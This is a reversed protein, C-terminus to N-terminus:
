ERRAASPFRRLVLRLLIIGLLGYILLCLGYGWYGLQQEMVGIGCANNKSFSNDLPQVSVATWMGPYLFLPGASESVWCLTMGLAMPLLFAMLLLVVQSWMIARSTRRAYMSILLSCVFLFGGFVVLDISLLVPTIWGVLGFLAICAAHLVPLLLLGRGRCLIGLAKGVVVQSPTLDSVALLPLTQRERERSIAGAGREALFACVVLVEILITVWHYLWVSLISFNPDSLWCVGPILVFFLLAAAVYVLRPMPRTSHWAQWMAPNRWVSLTPRDAPGAEKRRFLRRKTEKKMRLVTERNAVRRAALWCFLAFGGVCLLTCSVWGYRMFAVLTGPGRPLDGSVYYAAFLPNFFALVCTYVATIGQGPDIRRGLDITSTAIIFAPPGLLALITIGRARGVAITTNPCGASFYVGAGCCFALMGLLLTYHGVVEFWSVGGFLFCLFVIPVYGLVTLGIALLGATVKAYVIELDTLDTVLLLPLTQREKEEAILGASLTPAAFVVAIWTVVVVTYFLSSGIDSIVDIPNPRYRFAMHAQSIAMLVAIMMILLLLMRYLYTRRRHAVKSLEHRLVHNQLLWRV